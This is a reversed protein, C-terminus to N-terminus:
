AADRLSIPLASRFSFVVLPIWTGYIKKRRSMYPSHNIHFRNFAIIDEMDVTYRIKLYDGRPARVGSDANAVQSQRSSDELIICTLPENDM